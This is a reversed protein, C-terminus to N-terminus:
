DVDTEPARDKSFLRILGSRRIARSAETAEEIGQNIKHLLIQVSDAFATDSIFLSLASSDSNLKETLDMLNLTTFELHQSTRYLKNTLTTDTFLRGFIGEGQNVKDTIESINAAIQGINRGASDLQGTLLTDTFLRGVIGQGRSVKESIGNINETIRAIYESADDLNSTLTTDTFIKGFVGDGRNIKQTIAILEGTVVAINESSTKVERLIDDVDVQEMTQLTDLEAVPEAQISGPLITVVKAGMLGENGITAKSDKKVHVARNTNLSMRINVRNDDLFGISKVTGIDIGSLRVRDGAQVGKVDNFIANVEITSGFINEKRGVLYIGAIFILMALTIFVGVILSRRQNSKM